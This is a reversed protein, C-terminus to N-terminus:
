NKKLEKRMEEPWTKFEDPLRQEQRLQELISIAERLL